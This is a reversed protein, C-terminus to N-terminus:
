KTKSKSLTAIEAIAEAWALSAPMDANGEQECHIETRKVIEPLRVDKAPPLAGDIMQTCLSMADKAGNIEKFQDM